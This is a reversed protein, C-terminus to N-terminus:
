LGALQAIRDRLATSYGDIQLNDYGAARFADRVQDPSLQMLVQGIWRADQRPVHQGIWQIHMRTVYEPVNFMVKMAPRGPDGFDVYDSATKTIFRSDDFSKLNGKDVKHNGNLGTTGFSAGLDRVEYIKVPHDTFSPKREVLVANNKDECDWNNVLAMVTRLGNLEKTGTFPNDKWSWTELKDEGKLYRRMRVNRFSGDPGRQGQGRKLHDPLGNIQIEPMFYDEDAYYGAAWVIRTAVTEPQAEAGLKVKWKVGDEDRVVMKPNTGNTDEEEFTFTGHPQHEKGGPGAFLDRSRIDTPETWLVPPYNGSEAALKEKKEDKDPKDAAPALASVLLLSIGFATSPKFLTM